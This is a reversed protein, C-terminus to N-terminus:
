VRSYLEELQRAARKIDFDAAVHSAAAEGLDRLADVVDDDVGVEVVAQDLVDSVEVAVGDQVGVVVGLPDVSDGVLVAGHDQEIEVVGPRRVPQHLGDGGGVAALAVRHVELVVAPTAQKDLLDVVAGGPSPIVQDVGVVM